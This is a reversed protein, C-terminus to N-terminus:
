NNCAPDNPCYGKGACKDPTRCFPYPAVALGQMQMGRENRKAKLRENRKAKLRENREDETEAFQNDWDPRNSM